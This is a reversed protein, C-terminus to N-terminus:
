VAEQVRALEARIQNIAEAGAPALPPRPDGGAYGCLNMAAKLGPVGHATTVLRALPTLRAQLERAEAHRGEIAAHFLRMCLEPVVSAVALIGGRAGLCLSAYLAPASGAIISFDSPVSDVLAAVQAADSGSEKMGTINPHEALRGATEPALNVGTVAPFNYLLV